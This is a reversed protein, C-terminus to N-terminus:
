KNKKNGMPNVIVASARGEGHMVAVRTGPKVERLADGGISDTKDEQSSGFTTVTTKETVKFEEDRNSKDQKNRVSITLTGTAPDFKKVVGVARTGKGKGKGKQGGKGDDALGAGVALLLAVSSVVLYRLM